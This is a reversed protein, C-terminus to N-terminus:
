NQTHILGILDKKYLLYKATTRFEHIKNAIRAIAPDRIYLNQQLLDKKVYIVSQLVTHM